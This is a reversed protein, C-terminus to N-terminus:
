LFYTKFATKKIVPDIDIEGIEPGMAIILDYLVEPQAVSCTENKVCQVNTCKSVHPHSACISPSTRLIAFLM